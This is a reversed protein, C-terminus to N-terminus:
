AGDRELRRPQTWAVGSRMQQAFRMRARAAVAAHLSVRSRTLPAQGLPPPPICGLVKLALFPPPARSHPRRPLTRFSSAVNSLSASGSSGLVTGRAGPVREPAFLPACSQEQGRLHVLHQRLSHGEDGGEDGRAVRGSCGKRVGRSAGSRGGEARARWAGPRSADRDERAVRVKPSAFAPAFLAREGEGGVGRAARRSRFGVRPSARM